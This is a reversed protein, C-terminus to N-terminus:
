APLRANGVSRDWSRRHTPFPFSSTIFKESLPRFHFSNDQSERRGWISRSRLYLPLVLAAPVPHFYGVLCNELLPERRARNALYPERAPREPPLRSGVAGHDPLCVQSLIRRDCGLGVRGLAAVFKRELSQGTWVGKRKGSVTLRVPGGDTKFFLGVLYALVLLDPTRSLNPKKFM